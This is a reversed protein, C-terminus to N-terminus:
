MKSHHMARSAVVHNAILRILENKNSYPEHATSVDTFRTGYFGHEKQHQFDWKGGDLRNLAEQTMTFHRFHVPTKEREILAALNLKSRSFWASPHTSNARNCQEVM